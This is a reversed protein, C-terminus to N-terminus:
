RAKTNFDTFYNAYKSGLYVDMKEANHRLWERALPGLWVRCCKASRTILAEELAQRLAAAGESARSEDALYDELRAIFETPWLVRRFDEEQVEEEGELIRRDRYREEYSPDLDELDASKLSQSFTSSRRFVGAM